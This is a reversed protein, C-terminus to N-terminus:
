SRVASRAASSTATTSRNTTRCSPVRDSQRGPEAPHASRHRRQPRQRHLLLSRRRQLQQRGVQHGRQDRRRARRRVGRQHRQDQGASGAPIRLGHGSATRGDILSNTSSATSSFPERRRQRWPGSLRRRHRRLERRPGDARDGPVHASESHPRIRRRHRQPSLTVSKLDIQREAATVNVTELCQRRQLQANVTFTRGLLVLVDDNSVKQFGTLEIVVTYRGPQSIRFRYSGDSGSVATRM